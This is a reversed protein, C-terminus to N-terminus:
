VESATALSKSILLFEDAPLFAGEAKALALSEGFDPVAGLSFGSDASTARTMEDVAGLAGSIAAFDTMFAMAAVEERGASSTCLESIRTRVANFGTKYEFSDPYILPSSTKDTKGRGGTGLRSLRM